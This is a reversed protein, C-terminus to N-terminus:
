VDNEEKLDSLMFTDQHIRVGGDRGHGLVLNVPPKGNNSELGSGQQTTGTYRSNRSPAFSNFRAASDDINESPKIERLTNRANLTALLSNVYVEFLNYTYNM